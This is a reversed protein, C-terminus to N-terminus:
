LKKMIGKSLYYKASNFRTASDGENTCVLVSLRNVGVFNSELFFRFESTTNKNQKKTKYENWYVSREFKKSPLKSLRQINKRIVNSCSNQTM